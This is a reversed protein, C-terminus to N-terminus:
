RRRANIIGINKRRVDTQRQTRVPNERVEIPAYRNISLKHCKLVDAMDQRTKGSTNYAVIMDEIGRYGLAKAKLDLPRSAVYEVNRRDDRVGWGPVWHRLTDLPIELVNAVTVWTCNQQRLGSIVDELPEQFESEVRARFKQAAKGFSKCNSM